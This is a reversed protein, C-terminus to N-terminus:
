PFGYDCVRQYEFVHRQLNSYHLLSSFLVKNIVIYRLSRAPYSIFAHMVHLICMREDPRVGRVAKTKSVLLDSNEYGHPDIKRWRKLMM